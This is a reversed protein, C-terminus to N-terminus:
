KKLVQTQTGHFIAVLKKHLEIELFELEMFCLVVFKFTKKKGFVRTVHCIRTEFSHYM